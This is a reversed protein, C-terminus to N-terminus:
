QGWSYILSTCFGGWMQCLQSHPIEEFTDVKSRGPPTEIRAAVNSSVAAEATQSEKARSVRDEREEPGYPPRFIRPKPVNIHHAYDTGEGWYM